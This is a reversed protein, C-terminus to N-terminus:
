CRYIYSYYGIEAATAMGYFVQMIQMQFVTYGFLLLLWCGILSIQFVLM